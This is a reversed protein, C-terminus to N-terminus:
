GAQPVLCGAGGQFAELLVHLEGAVVEFRYRRHLLAQGESAIRAALSEDELLRLMAVAFDEAGDALLLHRGPEVELGAAGITTSVVPLGYSFAELIKIRSGAGARLPALALRAAAYHPALDAPEAHVTVGPLMALARLDQGPKRGVLALRLDARARTLLPLVERCLFKAADVNPYYSLNGVMMGDVTKPLEPLAAEPRIANPLAAIRLGPWTASLAEAEAPAALLILDFRGLQKRRLAELRAAERFAAKAGQEDGNRRRLDAVGCQAAADDEDLDLIAHGAAPGLEALPAMYLREVHLFAYGRGDCHERLAAGAAIPDYSCLRPLTYQEFAAEREAPDALSAILRYHPHMLRALPLVAIRRACAGALDSAPPELNTEAVPLVVLDVDYRQAYAELFMGARMALGNGSAAPMIPSLFLLSPRATM